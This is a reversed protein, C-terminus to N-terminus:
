TSNLSLTLPKDRPLATCYVPIVTPSTTSNRRCGSFGLLTRASIVTSSSTGIRCPTIARKCITPMVPCATIEKVPPLISAGKNIASVPANGTSYAVGEGSAVRRSLPSFKIDLKVFIAILKLSANESSFTAWKPLIRCCISVNVPENALSLSITFSSKPPALCTIPSNLVAIPLYALKASFTFTTIVFSPARAKSLAACAM